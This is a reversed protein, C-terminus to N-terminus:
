KRRKKKPKPKDKAKAKKKAKKPKSAMIEVVEDPIPPPEIDVSWAGEVVPTLSGAKMAVRLLYILNEFSIAIRHIIAGNPDLWIVNGMSTM